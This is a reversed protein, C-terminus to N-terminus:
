KKYLTNIGIIHFHTEIGIMYTNKLLIESPEDKRVRLYTGTRTGM